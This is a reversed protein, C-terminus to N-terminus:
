EKNEEKDEVKRQEELEKMEEKLKEDGNDHKTENYFNVIISTILAVVIIGYIGLIVSLIRGVVTTAVIDGFGITTVLAFCYWLADGISMNDEMTTLLLATAVILVILGYLIEISYTKRLISIITTKRVGSFVTFMAHAFAVLAMALPIFIFFFDFPVDEEFYAAIFLIILLFAIAYKLIALVIYRVKHKEILKIITDFIFSAFFVLSFVLSFVPNAIIGLSIGLMVLYFVVLGGYRVYNLKREKRFFFQSFYISMMFFCAISLMIVGKTTDEILCGTSLISFLLAVTSLFGDAILRAIRKQYPTFQKKM